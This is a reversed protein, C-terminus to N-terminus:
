KLGSVFVVTIISLPQNTSFYKKKGTYMDIIANTHDYNYYDEESFSSAYPDEGEGEKEKDDNNDCDCAHAHHYKDDLYHIMPMIVTCIITLTLLACIMTMMMMMMTTMM